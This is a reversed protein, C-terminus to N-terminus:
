ICVYYIYIWPITTKTIVGAIRAHAKVFVAPYRFNNKKVNSSVFCIRHNKNSVISFPFFRQFERLVSLQKLASEFCFIKSSGGEKM